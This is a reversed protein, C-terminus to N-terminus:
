DDDEVECETVQFMGFPYQQAVRSIIHNAHVASSGVGVVEHRQKPQSTHFTVM